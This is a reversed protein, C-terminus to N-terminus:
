GPGSDVCQSVLCDENHIKLESPTTFVQHMQMSFDSLSSVTIGTAMQMAPAGFDSCDQVTTWPSPKQPPMWRLPGIPAAGYRLGKFSQVGDVVLGQVPGNATKVVKTVVPVGLGEEARGRRSPVAGTQQGLALSSASSLTAATAAAATLRMMERRSMEGHSKNGIARDRFDQKM